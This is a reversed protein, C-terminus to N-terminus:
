NTDNGTEGKEQFITILWSIPNSLKVQLLEQYNNAKKLLRDDTTLLVDANAKEACAIHFSDYLGFGLSELIQSREQIINDITVKITAMQLIKQINELKELDTMKDLEVAIAESTILQWDESSIRAAINLVAEGEFRIREQTWDDFPRNLCCVDFYIKM